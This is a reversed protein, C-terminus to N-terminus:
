LITQLIYHKWLKKKLNKKIRIENNRCRFFFFSFFSLYLSKYNCSITEM